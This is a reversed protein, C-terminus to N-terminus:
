KRSRILPLLWDKAREVSGCVLLHLLTHTHVRLRGSEAPAKWSWHLWNLNAKLHRPFGSYTKFNHSNTLNNTARRQLREYDQTDTETCNYTFIFKNWDLKGKQDNSYKPSNRHFLSLSNGPWRSSLKFYLILSEYRSFNINNEYCLKLSKCWNM